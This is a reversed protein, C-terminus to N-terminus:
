FSTRESYYHAMVSGAGIQLLLVAAVFLFYKGTKRQSPTLTRFGALVPDMSAIDAGSLFIQYIFLVTGFGLFVFCFSAWTWIFTASTPANGVIPEFPWNQTWSVKSGPRYAV